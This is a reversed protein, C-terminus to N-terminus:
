GIINAGLTLDSTVDPTLTDNDVIYGWLIREDNSANAYENATNPAISPVRNFINGMDSMILEVEYSSKKIGNIICIKRRDNGAFRRYLRDLSLFIKDNVSNQYFNMKGKLTVRSISLSKFLALREAMIQAPMEDYLYVNKELTASIGVYKDVFGSNFTVFRLAPQNNFIDTFPSYNVRIENYIETKTDSTFSIIDDDKVISNIEPKESNLISYSIDLASNGYLSGFVSENILSIIDRIKPFDGEKDLPIPLALTFDADFNAEEFSAHNVNNFGSDFEILHKVAESPRRIWEGGVEMGLCDCTILSEDEILEVVKIQASTFQTSGTFPSRLIIDQEKVELIEYWTNEGSIISNKRIWDRPKLISRFDVVVGTTITRSGNTFQINVGLLREQTVNFEALEELIIKANISNEFDWDRFYILETSNFYVRQIPLKKVPDGALPIPRIANELVLEDGSIRRVTVLDANVLIQDGQNIDKIGNVIFRNSAIVQTITFEPSRLKHGAIHWERNFRRYPISPKIIYPRNTISAEAEKNLLCQTSSDVSEIGFKYTVGLSEIQIEDSPSLENLFDTGTGTLINSDVSISISGSGNFGNLVKDIGTTALQDVQGYIRRKPRGLSSPDIKGDLDSFSGLNVNNRLKFVFDKVRFVVKTDEFDKNEVVGTFIKKVESVPLGGFWQCFNVEKNEWILSDYIEDFYRHTNILDVTSQTELVIGTNEDDLQQGISGISNIFPLFEVETGTGLDWPLIVPANSFFHRFTVSIEETKPNGGVNIYLRMEEPNFFWENTFLTTTSSKALSNVGNKVDVVFFKVDLTYTNGSFLQFIKYFKLSDITVLSIKESLTKQSYEQFTSM